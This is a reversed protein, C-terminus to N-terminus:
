RSDASRIEFDMLLKRDACSGVLSLRTKRGDIKMEPIFLLILSVPSSKNNGSSETQM